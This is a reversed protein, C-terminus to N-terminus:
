DDINQDALWNHLSQMDLKLAQQLEEVWDYVNEWWAPHDGQQIQNAIKQVRSLGVSGAEALWMTNNRNM